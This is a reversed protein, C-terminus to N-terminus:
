SVIYERSIVTVALTTNKNKFNKERSITWIEESPKQKKDTCMNIM